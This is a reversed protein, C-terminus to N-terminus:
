DFLIEWDSVVKIPPNKLTLESAQGERKSAADSGKQWEFEVEEGGVTVTRPASKLGLVVIREVRVHAIKQAWSNTSPSHTTLDTTGVLGEMDKPRAATLDVSKLTSVGKSAASPGFSFGRWIFDGKEYGFSDGDDSYLEGNATFDKGLSIVLTYPDQWMLPSARRVRTRIPLISGGQHLVPVSSLPAAYPITRPKASSPYFHHTFYDYYPQNDSLYIDTEESEEEVVPKVLLGSTGIYFQDDLAFGEDDDPFAVYQPRLVPVGDSAAERFATYWVPLLTYRLRLMDRVYSKYPEELLYPERRKTDIHAHARFFPM